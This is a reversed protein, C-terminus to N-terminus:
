CARGLRNFRTPNVRFCDDIQFWPWLLTNFLQVPSGEVGLIGKQAHSIGDM